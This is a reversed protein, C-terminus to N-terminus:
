GSALPRAPDAAWENLSGDYVAVDTHGVVALALADLAAVIGAACYAIIHPAGDIVDAFVALLSEADLLANTERDVLRSAPVSVSGPIHGLRSRLGSEGRFERSPVGCLLLGDREGSLVASVQAADAWLEPRPRAHFEVGGAPAVWGAETPRGEAKWKTMGGDLVAVRDHGFSRLLWWLRAAWRGNATDYVIVTAADDIGVAAAAEEFREVDPRAFGYEGRPDSFEEVLDAVLAGPIHGEILYQDLASLWGYGGGLRDVRVVTADLVVMSPSGLHDALWQTSVLPAALEPGTYTRIRETADTM